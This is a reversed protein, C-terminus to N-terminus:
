KVIGEGLIMNKTYRHIEQGATGDPHVAIGKIWKELNRQWADMDVDRFGNKILGAFSDLALEHSECSVTQPFDACQNIKVAFAYERLHKIEDEKLHIEEQRFEGTATNYAAVANSCGGNIHIYIIDGIVNHGIWDADNYVPFLNCLEDVMEIRSGNVRLSVNNQYPLYFVGANTAVVEWIGAGGPKPNEIEVVESSEGDWKILYQSDFESALWFSKGDFAIGRLGETKTKLRIIEYGCTDMDFVLVARAFVCPCYLKNGVTCVYLFYIKERRGILRDIEKVWKDFCRFAGSQTDYRVIGKFRYGMYFIYKGYSVVSVFQAGNENPIMVGGHPNLTEVVNKTWDYRYFWKSHFPAFYLKGEHIVSKNVIRNAFVGSNPFSAAYEPNWTQKDMRLFANCNVASFWLYKGDDFLNESMVPMDQNGAISPTEINQIMIPKGTAQYLKVLSSWDGYYADSWAIARYLDASGDYIFHYSKQPGVMNGKRCGDDLIEFSREQYWKVLSKYQAAYDSRMTALTEYLLPHPRWWLIIGQITELLSFVVSLKKLYAGTDALFMSLTTNYLIIKKRRGKHDLFIGNWQHPLAPPNQCVRLALDLKPSGLAVFKDKPDDLTELGSNENAYNEWETIYAARITESEVIVKHAYITGPLICLEKPMEDNCIFYPIYVLMDTYNRLNKAYFFPPVTTVLNKDDYPNHIFIMDAHFNELDFTDWKELPVDAPLRAGEYNMKGLTGDANKHFYPIPIVHCECQPDAEAARWVSDFSDWMSAKYPLFVARYKDAPIAQIGNEVYKLISPLGQLYQVAEDSDLKTGILYVTECYQEIEKVLLSADDAMGEIAGGIQAALAQCQALLNLAASDHSEVLKFLIGYVEHLTELTDLIMKKQFKYM